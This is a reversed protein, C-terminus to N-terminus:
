VLLWEYIKIQVCKTKVVHGENYLLLFYFRCDLVGSVKLDEKTLCNNLYQKLEQNERRFSILIRYKLLSAQM